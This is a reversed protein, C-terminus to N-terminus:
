KLPDTFDFGNKKKFTQNAENLLEYDANQRFPSLLKWM